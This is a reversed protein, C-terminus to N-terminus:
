YLLTWFPLENGTPPSNINFGTKYGIASVSVGRSEPIGRPSVTCDALKSPQDLAPILFDASAL